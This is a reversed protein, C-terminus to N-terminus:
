LGMASLSPHTLPLPQQYKNATMKLNEKNDERQYNSAPSYCAIQKGKGYEGKWVDKDEIQM